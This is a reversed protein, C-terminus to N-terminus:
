ILKSRTVVPFVLLKVILTIQPKAKDTRGLNQFELKYRNDMDFKILKDKRKRIIIRQKFYTIEDELDPLIVRIEKAESNRLKIWAKTYEDM